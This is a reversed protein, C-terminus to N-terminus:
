GATREFERMFQALAECGERSMANYTSARMGGTARHGKLGDLGATKAGALFKDDLAESPTRFTINMLSRSDKRAHGKYFSSADLIDYIIKAKESNHKAMATLGGNRKIWKFVQGVAYIPFVPPTNHRSGDKAHVGYRLMTPLNKNCREILDDRIWLVTTGAPGLNKQAGAYVLGFKTIDIPRSYIDSSADCVLPVGPPPTPVYHFETGFITNNSTYHVYAPKPSYKTEAASPTYSHNKDESSAALHVKGYFQAEEVSKQAWYGTLLYDATGSKDQPMLNAPIMFNQTSAGGTLFLVRYNAPINGIERCDAEAEALVRDFVKGRHSHEMIGIGSRDINWIDQQCQRLVDDPLVGPGASFNYIRDTAPKSSPKAASSMTATM